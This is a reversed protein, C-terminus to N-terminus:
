EEVVILPDNGDFSSLIGNQQLFNLAANENPVPVHRVVPPGSMRKELMAIFQNSIVGFVKVTLLENFRSTPDVIPLDYSFTSAFYGTKTNSFAIGSLFAFCEEERQQAVGYLRKDWNVPRNRGPLAKSGLGSFFVENTDPKLDICFPRLDASESPFRADFEVVPDRDFHGSTILLAPTFLSIQKNLGRLSESCSRAGIEDANTVEDVRTFPAPNAM